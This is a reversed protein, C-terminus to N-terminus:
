EEQANQGILDIEDTYEGDKEGFHILIQLFTQFNSAVFVVTIIILLLIFVLITNGITFEFGGTVGLAVLYVVVPVIIGAVMIAMTILYMVFTAGWKDWFGVKLQEIVKGLAPFYDKKDKIYLLMFQQLFLFMFTSLFTNILQILIPEGLFLRFLILILVGYPIGIVFFSIFGFAFARPLMGRMKDFIEKASMDDRYPTEELLQTYAIPFCVVFLMLFVSLLLLVLVLLISMGFGVTALSSTYLALMASAIIGTAAFIAGNVILYNSFFNRAYKKFFSFTDGLLTSFGRKKYFIFENM